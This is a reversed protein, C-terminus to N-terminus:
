SKASKFSMVKGDVYVDFSGFMVARIRKKLRGKYIMARKLADQVDQKSYPKFVYYDAKIDIFDKLYKSHSTVFIIIIDPYLKRLEKALEVGNMGKMEIDLLAFEVLNQRAYELADEGFLFEGVVEIDQLGACEEKFEMMTWPEDDVLITKM